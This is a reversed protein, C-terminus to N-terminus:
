SANAIAAILILLYLSVIVGLQVYGLIRIIRRDEEPVDDAIRGDFTEIWERLEVKFLRDILDIM